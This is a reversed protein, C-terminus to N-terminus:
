LTFDYKDKARIQLAIFISSIVVFGILCGWVKSNKWSYTTGGWQLALLLCTTGCTLLIAGILDLGKIKERLPLEAHISTTPEFTFGVILVTLAGFALITLLTTIQTM